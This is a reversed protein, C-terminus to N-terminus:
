EGLECSWLRCKEIFIIKKNPPKMIYLPSMSHIGLGRLKKNDTTEELELENNSWPSSLFMEIDEFDFDDETM